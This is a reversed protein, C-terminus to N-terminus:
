NQIQFLLSKQARNAFILVREFPLNLCLKQLSRDELPLEYPKQLRQSLLGALICVRRLYVCSKHKLNVGKESKTRSFAGKINVYPGFVPSHGESFFHGQGPM